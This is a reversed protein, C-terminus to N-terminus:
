KVSSRNVSYYLGTFARSVQFATSIHECASHLDVLGQRLADIAPTGAAWVL